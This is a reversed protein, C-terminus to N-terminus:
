KGAGENLLQRYYAITPELGKALPVTPSWKLYQKAKTIDPCRQKPDDGPLPFYKITSKSQTQKLVEEALELMTFENPNGVNIPGTVEDQDM